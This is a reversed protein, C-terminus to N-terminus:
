GEHPEAIVLMELLPAAGFTTLMAVDLADRGRGIVVRGTRRQGHNRSDVTYWRGGVFVEAWACFDMPEGDPPVDIEPLYGFTYRTPYGLARCFTVTLHSLDRCVGEGAVQVEAATTLPTSSGYRFRINANVWGSVAVIQEWGPAVSGFLGFALAGMEDSPCYRSPLTYLLTESPLEAAPTFGVDQAVDDVGAPVEVVADYAILSRGQPITTRRCRNGYIDRYDSSQAPLEWRESVIRCDGDLRPEVQLMAHVAAPLDHTFRCGVRLRRREALPQAPVDPAISM